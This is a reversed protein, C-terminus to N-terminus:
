DIIVKIKTPFDWEMYERLANITKEKVFFIKNNVKVLGGKYYSHKMQHDVWGLLVVKRWNDTTKLIPIKSLHLEKIQGDKVADTLVSEWEM